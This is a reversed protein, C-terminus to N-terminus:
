KEDPEVVQYFTEGDKVMGLENRAREEIAALGDKLDAVEAALAANREVLRANEAQQAKLEQRLLWADRAGGDAIWLQYQLVLVLAALIATIWRM